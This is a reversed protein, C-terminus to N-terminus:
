IRLETTAWRMCHSVKPPTRPLEKALAHGAVHDSHAHSALIIKIDGMKFGVEEVSAKILPVTEEFGSNILIHGQPTTILYSALGRTGVYYLNGAIKFPPFQRHWDPGQWDAFQALLAFGLVLRILWRNSMDPISESIVAVTLRPAGDQDRVEAVPRSNRPSKWLAV